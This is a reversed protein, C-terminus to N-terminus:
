PTECHMPRTMSTIVGGQAICSSTRWILGVIGLVLITLGIAVAILPHQRM